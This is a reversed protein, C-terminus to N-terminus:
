RLGPVGGLPGDDGGADPQLGVPAVAAHKRHHKGVPHPEVAAKVESLHPARTHRPPIPAHTHVTTGGFLGVLIPVQFRM